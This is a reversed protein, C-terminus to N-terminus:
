ENLDMLKQEKKAKSRSLALILSESLLPFLCLFWFVTQFSRSFPEIFASFLWATLAGLSMTFLILLTEGIRDIWYKPPEETLNM